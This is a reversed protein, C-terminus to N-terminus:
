GKKENIRLVLITKTEECKAIEKKQEDSFAEHYLASELADFDVYEKTKVIGLDTGMSKLTNILADEDFTTKTQESLFATGLSTKVSDLKYQTMIEKIQTNEASAAKKFDNENRKNVIYSEVLKTISSEPMLNQSEADHLTDHMSSDLLSKRPM